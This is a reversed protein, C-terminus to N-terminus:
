SATPTWRAFPRPAKLSSSPSTRNNSSWPQSTHTAPPCNPAPPYLRTPKILPFLHLRGPLHTNPADLHLALSTSILQLRSRTLHLPRLGGESVLAAARLTDHLGRRLIEIVPFAEPFSASCDCPQALRSLHHSSILITQQILLRLSHVTASIRRHHLASVTLPNAARSRQFNNAVGQRQSVSSQLYLLVKKDVSSGAM